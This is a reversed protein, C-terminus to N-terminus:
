FIRGDRFADMMEGTLSVASESRELPLHQRDFWEAASLETRDMRIETSGDAECFFGALISDTFAWPQSKYYRINKVNLGVEEMVERRGADELSEGVEVYGAVLAYKQFRSHAKAYKTLLIREGDCIGVIVAPHIQPYCVTGCNPCQMAREEKRMSMRSGCRGCFGNERQWKYIQYGTIGAFASWLPRIQRLKETPLYTWDSFADIEERLLGFYHVADMRFLYAARECLAPFVETLDEVAPYVICGDRERCLIGGERYILMGDEAKPRLQRYTSDYRHPAIDQIM